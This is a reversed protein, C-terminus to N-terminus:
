RGTTSPVDEIHRDLESGLYHGLIEEESTLEQPKGSFRISGNRMLYIHDAVRMVREVYQEVILLSIGESALRGIFAYVEDVIIPALGMSVEDLLVVKPKTLMTRTLALMQREGGSLTGAAANIRQEIFPFAEIAQAVAQRIPLGPAFLSLNDRVSLAPFIGRGQPVHCLGRSAVQYPTLRSVDQGDLRVVGQQLPLMRTAARLLTTKGAGNPGLLAICAGDPIEVTVDNLVQSSSTYGVTVGALELM